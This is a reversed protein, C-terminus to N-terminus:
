EVLSLDLYTKVGWISGFPPVAGSLCKTLELVEEKSAIDVKKHGIISRVAKWSIKKSASMVLLICNLSIKDKLLMAKAGSALSVGRAKASDESTKCPLHSLLTYKTNKLLNLILEYSYESEPETQEIQDM